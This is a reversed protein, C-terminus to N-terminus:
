RIKQVEEFCEDHYLIFSSYSEMGEGKPVKLGCLHCIRKRYEKYQAYEAPIDETLITALREMGQNIGHLFDTVDKGIRGLFDNVSSLFYLFKGSVSNRRVM